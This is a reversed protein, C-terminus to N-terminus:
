VFICLVIKRVDAMCSGPPTQIWDSDVTGDVYGTAHVALVKIKYKTEPMLNLIPIVSFNTQFLFSTEM